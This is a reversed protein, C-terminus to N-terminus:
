PLDPLIPKPALQEADCVFRVQLTPPPFPSRRARLPGQDRGSEAHLDPWYAAPELQTRASAGISPSASASPSPVTQPREPRMM